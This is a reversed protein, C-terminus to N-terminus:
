PGLLNLGGDVKIEEGNIAPNAVLFAVCRAVDDVTALTRMPTRARSAEIFEAGVPTTMDTVVVAPSVTNVNIGNPGLDMALGKTLTQLGAKAATYALVYPEGLSAFTSSINVISGGHGSEAMPLAFAWIVNIAVDLNDVITRRAAEVRQERWHAPRTISGANNILVGPAGHEALLERAFEAVRDGDTLDLRHTLLEGATDALTGALERAATENERYIAVVRHGERCFHETIAAGIGRTGGTVVVLRKM